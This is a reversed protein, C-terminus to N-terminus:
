RGPRAQPINSIWMVYAVLAWDDGPQAVLYEEKKGDVERTKVGVAALKPDGTV